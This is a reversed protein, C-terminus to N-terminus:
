LMVPRSIYDCRSGPFLGSLRGPRAPLFSFHCSIHSFPQDERPDRDNDHQQYESGARSGHFGSIGTDYGGTTDAQILDEEPIDGVIDPQIEEEEPISGATDPHLVDEEPVGGSIDQQLLDEETTDGILTSDDRDANLLDINDDARAVVTVPPLQPVQAMGILMSTILLVTLIRKFHEKDARKM